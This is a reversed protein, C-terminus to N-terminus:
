NVLAALIQLSARAEEELDLFDIAWALWWGWSKEERYSDSLQKLLPTNQWVRQEWQKLAAKSGSDLQTVTTVWCTGRNYGSVAQAQAVVPLSVILFLFIPLLKHKVHFRRTRNASVPGACFIRVM